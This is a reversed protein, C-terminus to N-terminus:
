DVEYQKPLRLGEGEIFDRELKMRDEESLFEDVAQYFWKLWELETAREM